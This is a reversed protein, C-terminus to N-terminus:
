HCATGARDLLTPPVALDETAYVSVFRTADDSNTAEAVPDMLLDFDPGTEGKYSADMRGWEDWPLMEIKNLAALDRINNGRVEGIGWAHDVGDVGFSSPDNQGSRCATWAEGGSLFLGQGLDAPDDVFPFGLIESDIRIWRNGDHYETVWHDLHKGPKFYSAFGCRSRAPYRHARLLAVSLVSFHRCTGVIREPLTRPTDLPADNLELIGTLIDNVPRINREADREAAVGAGRALDAPIVLGQAARCLRVPDPDLERVVPAQSRDFTTLVGPTSYDITM